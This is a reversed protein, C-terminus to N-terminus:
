QAKGLTMAENIYKIIDASPNDWNVGNSNAWTMMENMDEFTTGELVKVRRKAMDVFPNPATETKKPAKKKPSPVEEYEGEVVEENSNSSSSNDNSSRGSFEPLDEVDQTFFESANVGILVAAILARKQAMKDITNVISYVDDNPVRYTVDTIRWADYSKGSSTSKSFKEATGDAMADKFKQWYSAPKGYKGSTEAKNIAFEFEDISDVRSLLESKDHHPPVEHEPMWRFGYKSEMSNCSGVGTALVKGTEIHRLHCTYRYFFLPKDFDEVETTPVFEPSLGFASCLKEAGAKLLTPKHTGPIVGFDYGERLVDTRMRVVIENVQKAQQIAKEADFHIIALENM